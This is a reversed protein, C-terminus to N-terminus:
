LRAGTGFLVRHLGDLIIRGLHGDGGLELHDRDDEIVANLWAAPSGLIWAEPTGELRTTCSAIQGNEIEVMAGAMTWKGGSPLEAALRCSGSLEAPLRLLPVALLFAAETDIATIAATEDPLHRREWRAAAAIPAVGERLWDTVRNLSGRGNGRHTELQGALRMAGLRRQLAPYNLTGIIDNLETLTLPKAALARLLTTSWAEALAGIAAKAGNGGLSLPGEPSKELWRQLASAVFLLDAGAETLEYAHTGPFRDRQGKVVAGAGSLKKLQARITTQAPSGTQRRLTVQAKPEESLAQLILFNLPAALLSLTQAGSRM